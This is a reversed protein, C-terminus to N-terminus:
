KKQGRKQYGKNGGGRSQTNSPAPFMCAFIRCPAGHVDAGNYLLCERVSEWDKFHILFQNKNSKSSEISVLSGCEEVYSWLEEETIPSGKVVMLCAKDNECAYRINIPLGEIIAGKYDEFVHPNEIDKEFVVIASKPGSLTTSVSPQQHQQQKNNRQANRLAHNALMESDKGSINKQFILIRKVKQGPTGTDDAIENMCGNLIIEDVSLALNSVLLTNKFVKSSNSSIKTLFSPDQTANIYEETDNIEKKPKKSLSELSAEDTTTSDTTTATTTDDETQQKRKSGKKNNNNATTKTTATTTTTTTTNEDDDVMKDKNNTEEESSSTQLKNPQQQQKNTAKNKNKGM